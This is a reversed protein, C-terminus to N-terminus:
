PNRNSRYNREACGPRHEPYLARGVARGGHQPDAPSEVCRIDVLQTLREVYYRVAFSDREVKRIQDERITLGDAKEAVAFGGPSNHKPVTRRVNSPQHFAGRSRHTYREPWSFRM